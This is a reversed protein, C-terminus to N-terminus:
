ERETNGTKLIKREETTWIGGATPSVSWIDIKDQFGMTEFEEHAMRAYIAADEHLGLAIARHYETLLRFVEALVDKNKCIALCHVKLRYASSEQSQKNSFSSRDM